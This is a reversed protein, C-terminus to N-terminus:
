NKQHKELPLKNNILPHVIIPSQNNYSDKNLPHFMNLTNVEKKYWIKDIIKEFLHQALKFSHYKEAYARNAKGLEIRLQPNTVLLRLQYKINEPSASLLPCENLYSYRRFVQTIDERELNTIVPLGTAMGEMASLAYGIIIQEVLIDADEFLIRKVESNPKNEVLILEVKLGESKLEEVTKIIFETGKFGKHNPTHVIKVTENVGDANSYSTKQQWANTDIVIANFPICDWRAAGDTMCAVINFDANNKWYTVREEIKEENFIENYCNVFLNHKVSYDAIKSYRYFDNGYPIIISKVGFYKLLFAEKKWLLTDSLFNFKFSMVLIDYHSIVYTFLRLQRIVKKIVSARGKLPFLEDVLLDFDERTNIAPVAVSLSHATYGAEKLANAWYKNNIIPTAGFLIRPKTVKTKNYLVSRRICIWYIRYILYLIHTIIREKM